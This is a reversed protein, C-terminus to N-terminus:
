QGKFNPQRKEIFAAAGEKFDETRTADGFAQVEAEFGDRDYQFYANVSEITKAIAVPGKSAIKKVIELAKEVAQGEPVVHNVLGLRHAEEAGIMDATLLLEMAKGKGIYQILRQTGGYGPLLGLNVEPQGFRANESAVRLHCAMALECGGGLAFGNVAAIVPKAFREILFFIDHGRQAMEQGQGADLGLFEKIDAGAVFAKSGAGTLVVGHLESRGPLDEGFLQKLELMTQTNLANLAKERNITVILCGDREELLLNQYPNMSTKKSRPSSVASHSFLSIRQSILEYLAESGPFHQRLYTLHRSMTQLDGRLAPGTQMSAPNAHRVKDVTEEMLPLLLEFPM